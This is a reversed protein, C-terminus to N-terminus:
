LLSYCVISKKFRRGSQGNEQSDHKKADIITSYPPKVADGFKHHFLWQKTSAKLRRTVFIWRGFKTKIKQIERWEKQQNEEYDEYASDGIWM